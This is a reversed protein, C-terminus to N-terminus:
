KLYIGQSATMTAAYPFPKFGQDTKAIGEMTMDKSNKPDYKNVFSKLTESRTHAHRSESGEKRYQTYFSKPSAIGFSITKSPANKNTLSGGYSIFKPSSYPMKDDLPKLSRIDIQSIMKKRDICATLNHSTVPSNCSFGKYLRNKLCKPYSFTLCPQHIYDLYTIYRQLHRKTKDECISNSLALLKLFLHFLYYTVM